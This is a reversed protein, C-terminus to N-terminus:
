QGQCMLQFTHKINDNKEGVYPRNSKIKRDTQVAFDWLKTTLKVETIPEPQHKYWKECDLIGYYIMLLWINM